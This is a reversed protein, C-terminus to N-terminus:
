RLMSTWDENQLEYRATSHVLEMDGFGTKDIFVFKVGGEMDNYYWIEYPKTSIASPHREVVSAEGYKILVRGRDSRWGKRFGSQYTQEAVQLRRYFLIEAENGPTDPNPDRSKWFNAIINRKGTVDSKKYQRKELNTAIYSMPGFKEDLEDESFQELGANYDESDTFYKGDKQHIIYFKKQKNVIKRAQIDAVEINLYYTGTGFDSVNLGQQVVEVASQGPKNKYSEKLSELMKGSPSYLSYKIEYTNEQGEEYQLNYVECFPYIKMRGETFILSANPLIDYGFYKSFKNKTETKGMQIGLQIDSIMLTDSNAFDPIEVAMTNSFKDKTNLDFTYAALEYVGPEAQLISIEPIKQGGTETESFKKDKISWEDIAVISDNQILAVRFFINSEFIGDDNKVFQFIDRPVNLYVELVGYDENGLFAAYDLDIESSFLPITLFLTLIV